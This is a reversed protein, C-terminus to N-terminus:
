QRPRRRALPLSRIEPPALVFKHPPIAKDIGLIMKQGMGWDGPFIRMQRGDRGVLVRGGGDILVLECDAYLISSLFKGKLRHAIGERGQIMCDRGLQLAGQKPFKEGKIPSPPPPEYAALGPRALGTPSCVLATSLATRVAGSVASPSVNRYGAMIDALTDVRGRILETEVLQDLIGPVAAPDAFGQDRESISQAMEEADPGEDALQNLVRELIALAQKADEPKCSASLGVQATAPGFPEYMAEVGYSIGASHRARALGRQAAVAIGTSMAWSRPGLMDIGVSQRGMAVAAPLSIGLPIPDAALHVVGHPLDLSLGEPDATLWLAADEAVFRSRAWAAVSEEDATYLGFQKYESLGPGAPGFRIDSLATAENSERSGAEVELIGKEDEVLDLPLSTLSACVHRLFRAIEDRTGRAFFFTRHLTVAANWTFRENELGRMALHEVLHTLGSSALTEDAFGVRFSLVATTPGDVASWYTPVDGVTTRTIQPLTDM